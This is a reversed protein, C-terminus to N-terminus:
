IGSPQIYEKNGMKMLGFNEEEASVRWVDSM